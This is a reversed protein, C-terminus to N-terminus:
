GPRRLVSSLLAFLTPRPAHRAMGLRTSACPLAGRCARREDRKKKGIGLESIRSSKMGIHQGSPFTKIPALESNGIVLKQFIIMVLSLNIKLISAINTLSHNYQRINIM